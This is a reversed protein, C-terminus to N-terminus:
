PHALFKWEEHDLDRRIKVTLFSCRCTSSPTSNIAWTLDDIDRATYDHLHARLRALAPAADPFAPLWESAEMLEARRGASIDIQFRQACYDLAETICTGFTAYHQM